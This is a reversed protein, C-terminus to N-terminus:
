PRAIIQMEGIASFPGPSGSKSAVVSWVYFGPAISSDPGSITVLAKTSPTQVAGTETFVPIADETRQKVTLTITYGSLDLLVKSDGEVTFSLTKADGAHMDFYHDSM